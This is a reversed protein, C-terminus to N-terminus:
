PPSPSFGRAVERGLDRERERTRGLRRLADDVARETALHDALRRAPLASLEARTGAGLARAPDRVDWRARYGAISSAASHWVDLAAPSTPRPGLARRVHSSPVLESAPRLSESVGIGAGWDALADVCRALEEGTAGSRTAGAWAALADRRAVGRRETQFIAAAFSHEDLDEHRGGRAPAGRAPGEVLLEASWGADRAVAAWRARLEEGSPVAGKVERTAAWAVHRARRTPSSRASHLRLHALIEARRGSLAGLVAPDLASLEWSRASSRAATWELGLRATVGHRLVADYLAAAAHAHAFLGRGDVARWRGDDGRALNAVVVHSHLHPDLARSVGHTFSAAVLGEAATPGRGDAVTRRVAAARAAVYDMAADVADEHAARVALAAPPSALAFVVSVSKPAAFTLDYARVATERIRLPHGGSPHRGSLVAGFSGADVVGQLGLGAAGTGVWRGRGAGRDGPPDIAVLDLESALDALYYRGTRDAVTAVRLV